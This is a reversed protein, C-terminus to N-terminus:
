KRKKKHIAEVLAMFADNVNQGSKASVEFVRDVVCSTNKCFANAEETKVMREDALDAKNGVLLVTIDDQPSTNKEINTIWKQVNQFSESDTMDYVVLVGACGRYYTAQITNYREQGATDWIQLKIMQNDITVDKKKFDVGITAIYNEQFSGDVWKIALSTKGVGADGLLLIKYTVKQEVVEGHGHVNLKNNRSSGSSSSSNSKSNNCGM